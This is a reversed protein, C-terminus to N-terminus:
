GALRRRAQNMRHAITGDIIEDGVQVSVGGLVDPDIDISLQMDRGYVHKLAAALREEQDESLPSAVKVVASIQGRRKAALEVLQSLAEDIRRGRLHTVVFATLEITAPDAKGSLLDDVLARKGPGSLGTGSLTLQLDGNADVIRGFRFLEEEVRDVEGSEESAALVCSAGAVELADLLDSGSSWRLGVAESALDLALPSVKDAVLAALIRRRDAQGRGSDALTARLSKERTLLDTIALIDTGAQALGPQGYADHVREDLLRLSTRSSGLM